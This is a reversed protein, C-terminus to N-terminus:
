RRYLLLKVIDPSDVRSLAATLTLFFRARRRHGHDLISLRM